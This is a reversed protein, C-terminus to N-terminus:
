VQDLLRAKLGLAKRWAITLTRAKRWSHAESCLCQRIHEGVLQADHLTELADLAAELEFLDAQELEIITSTM